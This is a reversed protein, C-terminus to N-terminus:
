LNDCNRRVLGCGCRHTSLLPFIPENSLSLADDRTDTDTDTDTVTDTDTDTDTSLHIM